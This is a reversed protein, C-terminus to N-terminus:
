GKKYLDERHIVQSRHVCIIWAKVRFHYHKFEKDYREFKEFGLEQKTTYDEWCDHKEDIRAISVKTGMKIAFRPTKNPEKTPPPCLLQVTRDEVQLRSAHKGRMALDLGIM